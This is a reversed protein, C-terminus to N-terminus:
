YGREFSTDVKDKDAQFYEHKTTLSDFPNMTNDHVELVHKRLVITRPFLVDMSAIREM